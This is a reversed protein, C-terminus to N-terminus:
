HIRPCGSSWCINFEFEWQSILMDAATCDSLLYYADLMYCVSANFMSLYFSDNVCCNMNVHGVANLPM